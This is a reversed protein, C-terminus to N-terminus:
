RYDPIEQSVDEIKYVRGGFDYNSWLAFRIRREEISLGEIEIHQSENLACEQLYECDSSCEIECNPCEHGFYDPAELFENRISERM